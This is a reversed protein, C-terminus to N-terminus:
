STRVLNKFHLFYLRLYTAVRVYSNFADCAISSCVGKQANPRLKQETLLSVTCTNNNM